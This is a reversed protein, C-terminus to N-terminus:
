INVSSTFYIKETQSADFNTCIQSQGLITMVGLNMKNM